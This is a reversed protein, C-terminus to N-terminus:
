EYVCVDIREIYDLNALARLVQRFEIQHTSGICLYEAGSCGIRGPSTRHVVVTSDIAAVEELCSPKAPICFEYDLARRGDPPGFLGADDLQSLDFTIKQM